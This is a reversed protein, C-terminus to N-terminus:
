ARRRGAVRACHSRTRSRTDSPRRRRTSAALDLVVRLLALIRSRKTSATRGPRASRLAGMLSCSCSERQDDRSLMSSADRSPRRPVSRPRRRPDPVAWRTRCRARGDASRRALGWCRRRSPAPRARARTPAVVGPDATISREVAARQSQLADRGDVLALGTWRARREISEVPWAVGEVLSSFSWWTVADAKTTEARPTIRCRWRRRPM